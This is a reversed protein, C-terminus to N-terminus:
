GPPARARSSYTRSRRRTTPTSAIWTKSSRSSTGSRWTNRLPALSWLLGISDRLLRGREASMDDVDMNKLVCQIHQQTAQDDTDVHCDAHQQADLEFLYQSRKLLTIISAVCNGRILHTAELYVTDELGNQYIQKLQKKRERAMYSEIDENFM